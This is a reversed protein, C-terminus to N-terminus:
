QSYRDTLNEKNKKMFDYFETPNLLGSSDSDASYFDRIIQRELAQEEEVRREEKIGSWNKYNIDKYDLAESGYILPAMVVVVDIVSNLLFRSLDAKTTNDPWLSKMGKDSFFSFPILSIGWKKGEQIIKNKNM